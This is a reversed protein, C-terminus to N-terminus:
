ASSVDDLMAGTRERFSGHLLRALLTGPDDMWQQGQSWHHLQVLLWLAEQVELRPMLNQHAFLAPYSESMPGLIRSPRDASQLGDTSMSRLLMDLEVDRQGIRSGEFDILGTVHGGDVMVNRFHLDTHIFVSPEAEYTVMRDTVFAAVGDLLLRLDPRISAASQVMVEVYEAPAHYADGWAGSEVAHEVWPNVMWDLVPLEHLTRILGGLETGITGREDDSLGAWATELNVGPLRELILYEGGLRRLGHAIPEPHPIEQPLRTLVNAEHAFAGPFKGSNLRVVHQDTMLVVNAFGDSIALGDSAMGNRQLISEAEQRVDGQITM